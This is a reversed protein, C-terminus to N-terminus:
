SRPRREGHPGGVCSATVAVSILRRNVHGPCDLDFIVEPLDFFCEGDERLRVLALPDLRALSVHKVLELERRDHELYAVDM